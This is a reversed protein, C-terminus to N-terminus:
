PTNLPERKRASITGRTASKTSDFLAVIARPAARRGGLLTPAAANRVLAVGGAIALAALSYGLDRPAGAARGCHQAFAREALSKARNTVRPKRGAAGLGKISWAIETAAAPPFPVATRPGASGSTVSFRFVFEFRSHGLINHHICRVLGPDQPLTKIQRGEHQPKKRSHCYKARPQQLTSGHRKARQEIATWALGRDDL